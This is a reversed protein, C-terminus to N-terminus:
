RRARVVAVQRPTVPPAKNGFSGRVYSLVAAIEDDTLTEFAPMQNAYRERNAPLVKEAGKLLLAILTDRSGQVVPNGGDLAPQLNPVGSGDVMHCVACARQFVERGKENAAPAPTQRPPQDAAAALALLALGLAFAKM